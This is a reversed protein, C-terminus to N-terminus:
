AGRRNQGADDAPGVVVPPRRRWVRTGAAAAAAAAGQLQPRGDRLRRLRDRLRVGCRSLERGERALGGGPHRMQAQRRLRRRQRLLVHELLFPPPPNPSPPPLPSPPPSPPAAAPPRRRRRRRRARRCLCRHRHRRRRARRGCRRRRHRRRRRRRRGGRRRTSAASALSPLRRGAATPSRASLTAGVLVAALVVIRCASCRGCCRATRRDASESDQELDFQAYRRPTAVRATPAPTGDALLESVRRLLAAEDKADLVDPPPDQM